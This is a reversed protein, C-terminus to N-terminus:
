LLRVQLAKEVPELPIDHQDLLQRLQLVEPSQLSVNPAGDVFFVPKSIIRLIKVASCNLIDVTWHGINLNINETSHVIVYKIM